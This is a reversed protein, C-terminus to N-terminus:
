IRVRGRTLMREEPGWIEKQTEKRPGKERQKM